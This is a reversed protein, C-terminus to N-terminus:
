LLSATWRSQPFQDAFQGLSSCDDYTSRQAYGTLAGGLARNEAARPQGDSPVLPEDFVRAGFIEADTPEASLGLAAPSNAPGDPKSKEATSTHRVEGAGAITLSCVCILALALRTALLVPEPTALNGALLVSLWRFTMKKKLHM